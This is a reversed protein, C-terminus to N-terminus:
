KYRELKSKLVRLRRHLYHWRSHANIYGLFAAIPLRLLYHLPNDIISEVSNLEKDMLLNMIKLDFFLFWFILWMPTWLLISNILIFKTKGKELKNEIREIKKQRQTRIKNKLFTNIKKMFFKLNNFYLKCNLLILFLVFSNTQLKQFTM